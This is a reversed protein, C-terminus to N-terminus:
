QGNGEVRGARILAELDSRLIRTLRGIKVRPLRGQSLWSAITPPKVTAIRAAEEIKLLDGPQISENTSM